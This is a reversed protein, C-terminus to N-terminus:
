SRRPPSLDLRMADLDSPDAASYRQKLLELMDEQRPQGFTLRYLAVDKKIRQLRLEDNSLAFPAVHREIKADGPYVWHPAFAGLGDDAAAAAIRYAADWPDADDAALIEDAHREILNLRVAHGDYRDIRGERQEFDIPSAPTNWHLIAHCWWHFDIGEQGVSTSALVFPRFPSNFAQRVHPLRVNEQEVRRGGYRLAFQASLKVRERPRQPDFVEYNAPRLAIASGAMDAIGLLRKDDLTPKGQAVLLHHLYEDLVAQLNGAACYQLVSRWYAQDPMLQSLLLTTEPRAFLTRLSSALQAAALWLGKDTVRQHGHSIRGLARYAINAPSHAAVEALQTRVADSVHRDQPTEVCELALAVHRALVNDHEASPQEDEVEEDSQGRLAAVILDVRSADNRLPPPLSDDRAFAEWWHSAEKADPDAPDPSHLQDAVARILEQADVPTSARRRHSLPDALEALGPMPWFLALTAMRAPRTTNTSDMGYALWKRRNNWETRREEPSSGTWDPGAACRDAQYSLLTAIATPTATWSSFVLRKTIAKGRPGGFEAYPGDPVLYPLTPPLWLLKWWGEGITQEVLWRLRDSGIGEALPELREMGGLDLSDTRRLLEHLEPSCDNAKVADRVKDGIKYGDMFNVFYPASKWYEISMPADLMTALRKLAVFGALTGPTLGTLAVSHEVSMSGAVSRPRETRTMVRLLAARIQAAVPGVPQGAIVGSRYRALGAAVDDALQEDGWTSLWRVIELFDKHHDEDEEAYTFPKYPTASLLLTKAIPRGDREGSRGAGHDYLYHALEGAVTGRDLLHRFRQFEDLIVLDPQLLDVSERALTTRLDDILSRVDEANGKRVVRHRLVDGILTEFRGLLSSRDARSGVAALFASRVTEDIDGRLERRLEQVRERFRAPTSVSGKLIASAAKGRRRNRLDLVDELLLYLMAREEAKGSRWGKEFSTGPTFSILNVPKTFGGGNAPRLHRSHKALLTLRSAFAHHTDGTVNLKGLNQAALDANSCVYVIDIRDVSDDHQLEEIARAIVGRAVITKGLGTEDAVLFRSAGDRYFRDVVHEVTDRQFPTLAEMVHAATFPTM